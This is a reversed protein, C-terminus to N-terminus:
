LSIYEHAQRNAYAMDSWWNIDRLRQSGRLFTDYPAGAVTLSAVGASYAEWPTDPDAQQWLWYSGTLTM